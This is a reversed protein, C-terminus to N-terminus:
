IQVTWKNAPCNGDSPSCGCCLHHYPQALTWLSSLSLFLVWFWLTSGGLEINRAPSPYSHLPCPIKICFKYHKSEIFLFKWFISFITQYFSDLKIVQNKPTQWLFRTLAYLPATWSFVNFSCFTFILFAPFTFCHM